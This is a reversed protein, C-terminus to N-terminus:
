KTLKIRIHQCVAPQKETNLTYEQILLPNLHSPSTQRLKPVSPSLVHRNQAATALLDFFKLTTHKRGRFPFPFERM